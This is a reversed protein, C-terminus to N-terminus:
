RGDRLDWDWDEEEQADSELLICSVNDFLLLCSVKRVNCRTCLLQMNLVDNQGRVHDKLQALCATHDISTM